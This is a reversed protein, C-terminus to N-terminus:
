ISDALKGSLDYGNAALIEKVKEYTQYVIQPCREMRNRENDELIKQCNIDGYKTEYEAEFWNVLERIMENLRSDEVEEETGKGAYLALLCAGGTLAGCTKGCFGLGGVLGAMARILDPNNKGQKELGMMLLIQSCYFEQQAIENMRFFDENM